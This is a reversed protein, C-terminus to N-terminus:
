PESIKEIADKLIYNTYPDLAAEYAEIGTSVM